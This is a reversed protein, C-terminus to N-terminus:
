KKKLQNYIDLPVMSGKNCKPCYSEPYDSFEVEWMESVIDFDLTEEYDCNLCKMQIYEEFIEKKVFEEVNVNIGTDEMYFLARNRKEEESVPVKITKFKLKSM